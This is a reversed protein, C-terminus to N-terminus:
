QEPAQATSLLTDMNEAGSSALAVRLSSLPSISSYLSPAECDFSILRRLFRFDRSVIRYGEANNKQQKKEM